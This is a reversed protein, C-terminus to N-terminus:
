LFSMAWAIISCAMGGVFQLADNTLEGDPTPSVLTKAKPIMLGAALAFLSVQLWGAARGWETYLELAWPQTLTWVMWLLLCAYALRAYQKWDQYM